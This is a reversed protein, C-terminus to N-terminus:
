INQPLHAKKLIVLYRIMMVKREDFNILIHLSIAVPILSSRLFLSDINHEPRTHGMWYLASTKPFPM